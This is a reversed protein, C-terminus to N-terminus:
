FGPWGSRASAPDFPAGIADIPEVGYRKLTDLFARRTAEINHVFEAGAEGDELNGAHQLALELHDALPLMDRLIEHRTETTETAFRQEWRKRMNALEAQLRTYRDEWDDEGAKSEIDQANKELAARTWVLEAELSKLDASQRHLAENKIELERSTEELKDQQQALRVKLDEFARALKQYDNLTPM